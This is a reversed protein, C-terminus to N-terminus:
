RDFYLDGIFARKTKLYLLMGSTATALHLRIHLKGSLLLNLHTKAENPTAYSDDSFCISFCDELFHNTSLSDFRTHLSQM